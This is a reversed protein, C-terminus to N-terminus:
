SLTARPGAGDPYRQEQSDADVGVPKGWGTGWRRLKGETPLRSLENGGLAGTKAEEGQVERSLWETINISCQM